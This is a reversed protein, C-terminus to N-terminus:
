IFGVKHVYTKCLRGLCTDPALYAQILFNTKLLLPLLSANENIVVHCKDPNVKM